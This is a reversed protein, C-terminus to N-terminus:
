SKKSLINLLRLLSEMRSHSCLFILANSIFATIGYTFCRIISVSATTSYDIENAKMITDISVLYLDLRFYVHTAHAQSTNTLMATIQDLSRIPLTNDVYFATFMKIFNSMIFYEHYLIVFVSPIVYSNYKFCIIRMWLYCGFFAVILYAVLIYCGFFAVFM